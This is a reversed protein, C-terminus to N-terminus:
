PSAIFTPKNQGLAWKKPYQRPPPTRPAWESQTIAVSMNDSCSDVKQMPHRVVFSSTPPSSKKERILQFYRMKLCFHFRHLLSIMPTIQSLQGYQILTIWKLIM